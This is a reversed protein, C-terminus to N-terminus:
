KSLNSINWNENMQLEETPVNKDFILPIRIELTMGSYSM